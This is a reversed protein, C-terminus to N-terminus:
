VHNVDGVRTKQAVGKPVDDERKDGEGEGLRARERKPGLRAKQAKRARLGALRASPCPAWLPNSLWFNHKQSKHLATSNFWGFPPNRSFLLSSLSM